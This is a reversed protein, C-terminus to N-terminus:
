FKSNLNTLELRLLDNLIEMTDWAIDFTIAKGNLVITLPKQVFEKTEEFGDLQANLTDEVHEIFDELEKKM